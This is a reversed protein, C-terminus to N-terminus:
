NLCLSLISLIISLVGIGISIIALWIAIKVINDPHQLLTRIKCACCVTRITEFDYEKKKELGGLMDRYYASIVISKNKDTINETRESKNYSDIFNDDIIRCICNVKKGTTIAKITIYDRSVFGDEPPMWIWGSSTEDHLAAFVKYIKKIETKM